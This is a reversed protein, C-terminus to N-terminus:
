SQELFYTEGEVILQRIAIAQTGHFLKLFFPEERRIVKNPPGKHQLIPCRTYKGRLVIFNHVLAALAM